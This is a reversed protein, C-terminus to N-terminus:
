RSPHHNWLAAYTEESIHRHETTSKANVCATFICELPLQTSLSGTAHPPLLTHFYSSPSVPSRMHVCSYWASSAASLTRAHWPSARIVKSLLGHNYFIFAPYHTRNLVNLVRSLLSWSRHPAAFGAEPCASVHFCQRFVSPPTALLGLASQPTTWTGGM